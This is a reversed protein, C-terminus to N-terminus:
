WDMYSDVNSHNDKDLLRHRICEGYRCHFNIDINWWLTHLIHSAAAQIWTQLEPLSICRFNCWPSRQARHFWRQSLNWRCRRDFLSGKRPSTWYRYTPPRDTQRDQQELDKNRHKNSAQYGLYCLQSARLQGPGPSLWLCPTPRPLPRYQLTNEQEFWTDLLSSAKM